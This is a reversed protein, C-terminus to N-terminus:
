KSLGGVSPVGGIVGPGVLLCNSEFGVVLWGDIKHNKCEDCGFIRLVTLTQLQSREWNVCKGM